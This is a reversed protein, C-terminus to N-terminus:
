KKPSPFLEKSVAILHKRSTSAEIAAVAIGSQHQMLVPDDQDNGEIISIAKYLDVTVKELVVENRRPGLKKDLMEIHRTADALLANALKTRADEKNLRLTGLMDTKAFAIDITNVFVGFRGSDDDRASPKSASAQLTMSIAQFEQRQQDSKARLSRITSARYELKLRVSEAIGKVKVNYSDLLTTRIRFSSLWLCSALLLRATSNPMDALHAQWEERYRVHAQDNDPIRLVAREVIAESLKPLWVYLECLVLGVVLSIVIGM